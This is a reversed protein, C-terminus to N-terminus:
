CRLNLIYSKQQVIALPFYPSNWTTLTTSLTPFDVGNKKKKVIDFITPLLESTSFMNTCWLNVKEHNSLPFQAFNTKECTQPKKCKSKM